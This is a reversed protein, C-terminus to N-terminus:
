HIGTGFSFYFISFATHSRTEMAGRSVYSTPLTFDSSHLLTPLAYRMSRLNCQATPAMCHRQPHHETDECELTMGHRNGRCGYRPIETCRAMYLRFRSISLKFYHSGGRRRPEAHSMRLRFLSTPLTFYLRFHTACPCANKPVCCDVFHRQARQLIRTLCIANTDTNGSPSQVAGNAGHLSTPPPARHSIFIVPLLNRM